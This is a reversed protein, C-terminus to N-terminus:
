MLCLWRKSQDIYLHVYYHTWTKANEAHGDM